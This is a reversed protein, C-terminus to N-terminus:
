MTKRFGHSLNMIGGVPVITRYFFCAFLLSKYQENLGEETNSMMMMMMRIMAM